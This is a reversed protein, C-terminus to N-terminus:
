DILIQRTTALPAQATLELKAQSVDGETKKRRVAPCQDSIARKAM